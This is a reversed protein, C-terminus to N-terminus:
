RRRGRNSRGSGKSRSPNRGAERAKKAGDKQRANKQGTSKQGVGKQATGKQATSQQASPQRSSRATRGRVIGIFEEIDDTTNDAVWAVAVTTVPAEPVVRAVVDRRNYHRAVAMPLVVVGAGSAAVELAMRAGGCEDVNLVNEAALDALPVEDLLSLEHEKSVAVVALEEYLPIVSLADRDIPLRVFAIDVSGNRLAIALADDDYEAAELPLLPHRERWRGLWKGPTVGPVFGIRLVPPQPQSM